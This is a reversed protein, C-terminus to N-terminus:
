GRYKHWAAGATSAEVGVTKCGHGRGSCGEYWLSTLEMVREAKQILKSAALINGTDTDSDLVSYPLQYEAKIHWQEWLREARWLALSDVSM